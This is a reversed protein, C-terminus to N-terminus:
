GDADREPHSLSRADQESEGIVDHAEIRDYGLDTIAVFGDPYLARGMADDPISLEVEGVAACERAALRIDAYDNEYDAEAADLPVLRCFDPEWGEQAVLTAHMDRWSALARLLELRANPIVITTM